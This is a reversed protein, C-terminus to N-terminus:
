FTWRYLHIFYPIANLSRLFFFRRKTATQTSQTKAATARLLLLLQQQRLPRRREYINLGRSEIRGSFLAGGGGGRAALSPSM